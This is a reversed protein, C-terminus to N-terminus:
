PQEEVAAIARNHHEDVARVAVVHTGAQAPIRFTEPRAM